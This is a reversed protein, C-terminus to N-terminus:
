GFVRRLIDSTRKAPNARIAAEEKGIYYFVGELGKAVGHAILDNKAQAGLQPAFPVNRTNTALNDFTKIAGANQLADGMIPMFLGTLRPTTTRQLYTTAANSPGRVINIADNITLSSVADVFIDRAIPAAREAGRNLQTELNNLLSGMGVRSLARQADGLFGPLPIHIQNDNLFGGSRGVTRVATGIGNNLAAKIGAAADAQTLGFRSAGGAGGTAAIIGGLVAQTDATSCAALSASAGLLSTLAARRTIQNSSTRAM